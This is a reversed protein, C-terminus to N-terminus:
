VVAGPEATPGTLNLNQQERQKKREEYDDKIEEARECYVDTPPKFADKAETMAMISGTAEGVKATVKYLACLGYAVGAGPSDGADCLQKCVWGLAISVTQIPDSIITVVLDVAKDFLANFPISAWVQSVVYECMLYDGMQECHSVPYGQQKVEDHMCVAKYCHVQRLKELNHVIGPLCLCISSWLLSDKITLVPSGAGYNLESVAYGADSLVSDGLYNLLGQISECWPVGGGAWNAVGLNDKGGRSAQCNVISCLEDLVQLLTDLKGDGGYLEALTEEINCLAKYGQAISTGAGGTVPNSQLADKAIGLLGAVAYLTGIVTTIIGKIQCVLEAYFIYERTQTLWDATVWGSEISREIKKDIEQYLGQQPVNYFGTTVNINIVQPTSVISSGAPLNRKTMVSIPCTINLETQYYDRAELKMILYPDRTGEQVNSMYVDNLTLDIDGSCSTPDTPGQVSLVEVDQRVPELHVRCTVYPNITSAIARDIVSPNCEVKHNWFAGAVDGEVGFVELETSTSANNGAADIFNFSIRSLYPGSLMIQQEFECDTTSANNQTCTADEQSPSGGIGSFDAVAREFGHSQVTYRVFNTRVPGSLNSSQVIEMNTVRPPLPPTNDYVINIQTENGLQNDFDDATAKTIRLAYEGQPTSAPPDLVWTCNWLDDQSVCTEARELTGMGLSSLDMYAERGSMGVGSQEEDDKDEFAIYVLANKGFLPLNDQTKRVSIGKYEPGVHDQRFDCNFNQEQKNGLSDTAEVTFRCDQSSTIPINEWIYLDGSIVTPTMEEKKSSISAFNARITNQNLEGEDRIRFTFRGMTQDKFHTLARGDEDNVQMLEINPPDNDVVVDICNSTTEYGVFDDAILCMKASEQLNLNVSNSRLCQNVNGTESLIEEGGGMVSIQRIGSCEETDGIRLGYDEISYSLEVPGRTITPEIKFEKVLPRSSDVNLTAGKQSVLQGDDDLLKFVLELPSFATFGPRDFTCRHTTGNQKVCADFEAYSSEVWAQMQSPDINQDYPIDARVEIALDDNTKIYGDTNEKGSVKVVTLQQASVVPITLVLLIM